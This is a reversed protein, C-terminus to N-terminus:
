LRTTGMSHHTTIKQPQNGVLHNLSGVIAEENKKSQNKSFITEGVIDFVVL